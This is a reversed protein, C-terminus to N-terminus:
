EEKEIAVARALLQLVDETEQAFAKLKERVQAVEERTLDRDELANWLTMYAVGTDQIAERAEKRLRPWSVLLRLLVQLRGIALKLRGNLKTIMEAALAWIRRSWEAALARIRRSWEAALARIRRSWEAAPRVDAAAVTAGCSVCFRDEPGLRAGCSICFSPAGPPAAAVPESTPPVPQSQPSTVPMAGALAWGIAQAVEAPTQYREATSKALLRNLVEAVGPPLEVGALADVPTDLELLHHRMVQQPTSGELPARGTLMEYLVIGLSYLDSRIDVREGRAQEPSMYAPTGMVMGSATMTAFETARAIGFDSVKALGQDTLLVNQPKMDRHVIGQQHAANLADAIQRTFELAENVTLAGRGRVLGFLTSPLFEMAMCLNGDEEGVDYVTVVNPHTLSAAMRAERLFRERFQPNRALHPHSVKLAVIRGLRTDRARYVTAQGGAAVEDLVDYHGIRQQAM